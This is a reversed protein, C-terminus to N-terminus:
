RKIIPLYVFRSIYTSVDASNNITELEFDTSIEATSTITTFSSATLSVTGTIIFSQMNSQAPLAGVDWMLPTTSVPTLSANEYSIESPLTFVIQTGSGIVGGRNGFEVTYVVPSGPSSVQAGNVQLWVDSYASGLSVEDMFAWIPLKNNVVNLGLTVTVSEGSWPSMDLWQHSWNSANVTESFVTTSSLGDDVQIFIAKGDQASGGGLKYLYSLTPNTITTPITLFQQTAPTDNIESFQSNIHYMGRQGLQEKIWVIHPEGSPMVTIKSLSALPDAQSIIVPPSWGGNSQRQAYYVFYDDSWVTHLDGNYDVALDPDETIEAQNIFPFELICQDDVSNCQSYVFQKGENWIIHATNDNSAVLGIESVDPTTVHVEIPSNWTGDPDHRAYYTKSWRNWVVHGTGDSAIYMRVPSNWVFYYVQMHDRESWTGDLDRRIYTFGSSGTGDTWWLVHVIGQQDVSLKVDRWTLTLISPVISELTSWTGDSFRKIYNFANSSYRRSIIHATNANDVFIQPFQPSWVTAMIEQTSWSGNLERHGYYINFNSAWVVQPIGNNGVAMYPKGQISNTTVTEVPNWHGSSDRYTYFVGSSGMWLVHIQGNQDTIMQPSVSNPLTDNAIISSQNNFPQQGLFLANQGSHFTETVLVPLNLGNVNWNEELNEKEFGWDRIINNQPPLYSDFTIDQKLEFPTMPLSLYNTKSWSINNIEPESTFYASYIGDIDSNVLGVANQDSSLSVNSIPTGRNDRVIGDVKRFYFSTATDGDEPFWDEMNQANDIGRSRFYYTHGSITNTFVASESEIGTKWDIWEGDGDRYQIDYTAIGSNGPDIGAWSVLLDTNARNFPSLPSVATQPPLNEVTTSSDAAIPWTELNYANDRARSRFAYTQGGIGPYNASSYPTATLWDMWNGSSGIKVQIDYSNIESGGTDQGAWQVPIPGPSELSLPAIQSSPKVADTTQWDPHWELTNAFLNFVNWVQSSILASLYARNWYWVGDYKMFDIKTFTIYKGDPSWSRAWADTSDYPDYIKQQNTGDYDMVWLDQWGDGDSDADFAIQSGDPSWTPNFSYPQSSIQTLGSGDANMTYIRYGGTRRSVFAIKGGDPSWTPTGDYDSDITLRTQASGNANMVYIEPQGDRYAQFAIKTGDPSWIPNVDDTSNSTLRILNSGDTKMSYIEFNGDRRSAFAVRTAGRNLRPHIDPAGSDTLRKQGSGDDNGLYIEWNGDRYSQFAVKSWPIRAATATEPEAFQADQEDQALLPPDGFNELNLRPPPSEQNPSVARVTTMITVATVMVFVIIFSFRFILKKSM